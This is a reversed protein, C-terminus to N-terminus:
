GGSGHCSWRPFLWKLNFFIKFKTINNANM